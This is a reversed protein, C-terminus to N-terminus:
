QELTNLVRKCEAFMISDNSEGDLFGEAIEDFYINLQLYFDSLIGGYFLDSVVKRALIASADKKSFSGKKLIERLKFKIDYNFLIDKAIRAKLYAYYELSAYDLCKGDSLFAQSLISLEDLNGKIEESFFPFFDMDLSNTFYELSSRSLNERLLQELLDDYKSKKLRNTQGSMINVVYALAVCKIYFAKLYITM